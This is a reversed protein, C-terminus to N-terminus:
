VRGVVRILAQFAAMSHGPVFDDVFPLAAVIGQQVPLYGDKGRHPNSWVVRHALMQLQRVQEGLAEPDDREWGDSFLVAVAGRAMGRRGWRQLFVALGEALRTGGSWDPVLSGAALLAREPDRQRLARTVHTLRTGMTFVEVPLGSSVYRHALRLLSDAYPTMSGSVDILLVIRRSRRGRRRRRINGPEGMRRLEERLTARADVRGRTAPTQRHARRVPARPVLEAFLTALATRETIDMTAVDRHRLVETASAVAQITDGQHEGATNGDGDEELPAIHVSASPVPKMARGPRTGSFWDLFVQDFREIDAPSGCLTARAAVWTAAMDHFGVAAVAELMTRERDATVAVGAARVARALGLLLEDAEHRVPRQPLLAMRSPGPPPPSM